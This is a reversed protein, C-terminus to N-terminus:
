LILVLIPLNKFIKDQYEKLNQSFLKSVSLLLYISEKSEPEFNTLIVSKYVHYDESPILQSISSLHYEFRILNSSKLIM